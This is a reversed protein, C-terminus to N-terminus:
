RRAPLLWTWISEKRSPFLSNGAGKARDEVANQEALNKEVDDIRNAGPM